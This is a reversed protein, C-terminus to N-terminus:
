KPTHGPYDPPPPYPYPMMMMPPPVQGTKFYFRTTPWLLSIITFISILTGIGLGSLGLFATILGLYWGFRIPIILLIVSIIGLVAVTIFITNFILSFLSYFGIPLTVLVFLLCLTIGAILLGIAIKYPLPRYSFPVTPLIKNVVESPLEYMPQMPYPYFPHMQPYGPPPPPPGHKKASPKLSNNKM